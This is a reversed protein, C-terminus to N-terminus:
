YGSGASLLRRPNDVLMRDIDARSIGRALMAPVVDDILHTHNWEPPLTADTPWWDSYMAADHALLIQDAYGLECLRHVTEIREEMSPQGAVYYGFRDSGIFSGRDLVRRLFDIDGSDGVHGILVRSLDVGEEEFVDQQALGNQLWPDSHTVIPAGTERHARASARLIRDVNPTVGEKDTVVKIIGARVDTDQVGVMIDHVFMDVLIDRGGRPPRLRVFPPVQDRTYLGTAVIISVEPVRRNAEVLAPVDRGHGMASCDLIGGIGRDRLAELRSVALDVAAARGAPPWAFAPFERAIEATVNFVHEHALTPGLTVPDIEGLVTQIRM